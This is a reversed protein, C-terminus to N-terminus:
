RESMDVPEGSVGCGFNLAAVVIQGVARKSGAYFDQDLSEFTHFVLKNLDLEDYKYEGAIIEETTTDQPFTRLVKGTISEMITEETRTFRAIIALIAVVSLNIRM